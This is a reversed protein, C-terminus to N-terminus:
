TTKENQAALKRRNQEERENLLYRNALRQQRVHIPEDKSRQLPLIQESLEALRRKGAAVTESTPIGKEQGERNIDYATKQKFFFFCFLISPRLWFRTM